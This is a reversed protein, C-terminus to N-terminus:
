FNKNDLLWDEVEFILKLKITQYFIAM